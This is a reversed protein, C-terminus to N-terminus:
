ALRSLSTPFITTIGFINCNIARRLIVGRRVVALTLRRRWPPLPWEGGGKGKQFTGSDQPYNQHPFSAELSKSCAVRPSFRVLQTRPLVRTATLPPCTAKTTASPAPSLTRNTNSPSIFFMSNEQSFKHLDGKVITSRPATHRVISLSNHQTLIRSTSSNPVKKTLNDSSERVRKSRWFVTHYISLSSIM